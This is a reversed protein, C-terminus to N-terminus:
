LNNAHLFQSSITNYLNVFANYRMLYKIILNSLVWEEDGHSPSETCGEGRPGTIKGLKIYVGNGTLNSGYLCAM